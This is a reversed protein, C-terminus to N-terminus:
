RATDSSGSFMEGMAVLIKRPGVYSMRAHATLMNDVALVDGAHWPFKVATRWYMEQIEEIISTEIPTGDGYYVNRPLDIEKFLSLMTERASPDLCSVHHLLIQNFFVSEFTKPHQTVAQSVHRTRLGGDGKWEIEISAEGCRKEVASKDGTRFFDQWSVDLGDTFNRVYMLGKAAFRDRIKPDLAAYTKRCDLLPTEGGEQAAEVCYFFINLPWRHLHSSENHFLIIQDSPYPTSGYIKSGMSERPLDGYEGFLDPCIVQALEEFEAASNVGCGRFLVAGAKLLNSKIFERNNKAWDIVDLDGVAPQIVLPLAQDPGPYDVKVLEDQLAADPKLDLAKFRDRLVAKRKKRESERQSQEDGSLIELKDISSDPTTIVSELLTMFHRSMRSVTPADLLDTNYRWTGTLSGDRDIVFLALDWKSAAEGTSSYDFEDIKLGSVELSASPFSQFSLVVQVLPNRSLDRVPQLEEVLKDFPMDQHMYADLTVSRVRRLLDRFTMGGKIGMRLVLINVFNGILGEIEIRTRGAIDAGIVIDEQKSYRHLLTQLAALLLMFLTVGEQRSLEKLRVGIEDSFEIPHHGGQFRRVPPRPRYTPLETTPLKGGLQRRWYDLLHQMSEGQLLNRQWVAFDAYQIPLEPLPSEQGSAYSPYLVAIERVLVGISWGDGAIHHLTLVVVNETAGLRLLGVRLMLDASLDFPRENQESTRRLAESEKDAFDSLDEVVLDFPRPPHSVQVPQGDIEAFTTRLVEHRRVI